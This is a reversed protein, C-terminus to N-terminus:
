HHWTYVPHWTNALLNPPTFRIFGFGIPQQPDINGDQLRGALKEVLTLGPFLNNKHIPLQKEFNATSEM